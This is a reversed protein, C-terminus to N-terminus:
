RVHPAGQFHPAVYLLAVIFIWVFDVFHWYLAVAKYAKHPTRLTAGYRPLVGVYMLLLLGVVVHAAHLSTITYFISGYSDSYPTLKKWHSVYEIVQLGMFCLGLFVAGWLAARAAGFRETKLQREGWVLVFSSSLLIALLILPYKLEPPTELAWRDKNTGLYYYAGFMCVFLMLETAIVTWMAYIGREQDLPLTSLSTRPPPVQVASSM